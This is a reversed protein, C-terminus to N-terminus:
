PWRAAKLSLPWQILRPESAEGWAAALPQRIQDLPDSHRAARYRACASWTAVYGLQQELSWPPSVPDPASPAGAAM